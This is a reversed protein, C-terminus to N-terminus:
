KCFQESDKKLALLCDVINAQEQKDLKLEYRLMRKVTSKWARKNKKKLKKCIRTNYHCSTCQQQLQELCEEGAQGPSSSLFIM